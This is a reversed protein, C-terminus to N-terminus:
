TGGGPVGATTLLEVVLVDTAAGDAIAFWEEGVLSFDEDWLLWANGGQSGLRAVARTTSVNAFPGIYIVQTAHLNIFGLAVRNPTQRALQAAAVGVTAAVRNYFPSTETGFRARLLDALNGAV